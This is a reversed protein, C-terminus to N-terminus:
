SPMERAARKIAKIIRSHAGCRCLHDALAANIAQDDPTPDAALLAEAAVIIGPVCYGCQAAREAIFAQQIPHLKDRSGIGEITTIERDPFAAVPTNCSFAPEGDVLVKCAGCQELGCGFKAGKLGLHNRLVYLLPTGPDVDLQHSQGNVILSITAM